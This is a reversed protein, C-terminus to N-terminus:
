DLGKAKRIYPNTLESPDEGKHEENAEEIAYWYADVRLLMETRESDTLVKSLNEYEAELKGAEDYLAAIEPSEVQVWQGDQEVWELKDIERHKESQKVFAEYARDVNSAM